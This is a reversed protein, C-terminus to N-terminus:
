VAMIINDVEISGILATAGRDWVETALQPDTECTDTAAFFSRM